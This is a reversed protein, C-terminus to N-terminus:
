PRRARSFARLEWSYYWAKRILKGLPLRELRDAYDVRRQYVEAMQESNSGPMYAEFFSELGERPLNLKEVERLRQIKTLPAQIRLRNLDLFCFSVRGNHWGALINGQRLDRHRFGLDHFRRLCAGLEGMVQNRTSSEPSEDMLVRQLPGHDAVDEFAVIGAAGGLPEAARLGILPRPTCFGSELLAMAANWAYVAKGPRVAYVLRDIPDSPRFHKVWVPRRDIHVRVTLNRQSRVVEADEQRLLNEAESRQGPTMRDYLVADVWGNYGSGLWPRYEGKLSEPIRFLFHDRDEM